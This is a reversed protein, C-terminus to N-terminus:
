QLHSWAADEEPREWDRALTQQSLLATEPVEPEEIITVIARCTHGLHLAKLLHIQGETDITAEVAKLM